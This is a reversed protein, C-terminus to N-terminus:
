QARGFKLHTCLAGGEPTIVWFVKSRPKIEPAPTYGNTLYICGDYLVNIKKNLYAFVSDFNKVGRGHIFGPFKVRYNYTKQVAADCEIIEIEAANQWM